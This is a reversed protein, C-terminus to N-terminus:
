GLIGGMESTEWSPVPQRAHFQRIRGAAYELAQTLAPELNQAAAQIASEPVRFEELSVGDLAQSWRVLAADGDEQVSTLIQAVAAEPSVGSGFRQEVSAVLRPPYQTKNLPIRRLLTARATQLDFIKLM